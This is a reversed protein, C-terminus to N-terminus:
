PQIARHRQLDHVGAVGAVVLEEGPKLALGASDCPQLIGAQDGHVVLADVALMREQHHFEDLAASQTFQQDLAPRHRRVRDAATSRGTSPPRATAWRSPSTCRSTLGSFTSIESSPSTLIASKPNTRAIASALIVEVLTM